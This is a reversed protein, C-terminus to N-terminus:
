HLCFENGEPDQMVAWRHGPHSRFEVFTAGTEAWQDVERELAGPLVPVDLHLRNKGSKPEAVRQFFLRPALGEPDDVAVADAFCLRGDICVVDDESVIRAELLNAVLDHGDEVQYGLRAAWWSALAHPDLADFTIQVRTAMAGLTPMTLGFHKCVNLVGCIAQM